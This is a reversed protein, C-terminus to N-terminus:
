LYKSYFKKLTIYKNKYELYKDKYEEDNKHVLKNSDSDSDSDTETESSLLTDNTSKNKDSLEISINNIDSNDSKDSNNQQSESEIKKTEPNEIQVLNPPHETPSYITYLKLDETDSTNQIRHKTGAPVIIGVEKKLSYTTNAVTAIGVGQEIKLFQDHNPHVEMHIDDKPKICMIVFQQNPGTYIVRRYDSNELTLKRISESYFPELNSGDSQVYNMIGLIFNNTNDFLDNIENNKKLEDIQKESLKLYSNLDNLKNNYIFEKIKNNFNSDTNIFLELKGIKYAIQLLNVLNLEDKKIIEILQIFTNNSEKKIDDNNLVGNIDFTKINDSNVNIEYKNNLIENIKDLTPKQPPANLFDVIKNWYESCNLNNKKVYRGYVKINEFLESIM